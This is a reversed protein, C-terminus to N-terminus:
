ELLEKPLWSEQIKAKVEAIFASNEWGMFRLLEVDISGGQFIYWKLHPCLLGYKGRHLCNHKELSEFSRIGWMKKQCYPSSPIKPMYGLIQMLLRFLKQKLSGSYRM